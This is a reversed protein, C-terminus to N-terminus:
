TARLVGTRRGGKQRRELCDSEKRGSVYRGLKFFTEELLDHNEVTQLKPREPGDPGWSYQVPVGPLVQVLLSRGQNKWLLGLGGGMDKVDPCDSRAAAVAWYVEDAHVKVALYEPRAILTSWKVTHCDAEQTTGKPRPPFYLCVDVPQPQSILKM